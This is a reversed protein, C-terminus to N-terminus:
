LNVLKCALVFLALGIALYVKVLKARLGKGLDKSHRPVVASGRDTRIICHSGKGNRLDAGRKEAYHVFDNGSRLQDLNKAM